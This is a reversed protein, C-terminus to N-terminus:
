KRRKLWGFGGAALGGFALIHLPEPVPTFGSLVVSTPNYFITTLYYPNTTSAANPIAFMAGNPLGAFTGTVPGGQILTISTAANLATTNASLVLNAVGNGIAISGGGTLDIQGHGSGPAAGRILLNLNSGANMTVAGTINFVATTPNFNLGDGAGITGGSNVTVSGAVRGVSGSISGGFLSGGNNVVVPGSIQGTVTIAGRDITTGGTYTNVGALSIPASAM